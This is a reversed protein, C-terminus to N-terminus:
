LVPRIIPWGQKGMWAYVKAKQAKTFPVKRGWKCGIRKGYRHLRYGREVTISRKESGAAAIQLGTPLHTLVWEGRQDVAFHTGKLLWGTVQREGHLCNIKFASRILETM